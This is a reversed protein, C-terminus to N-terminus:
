SDLVTGPRWKQPSNTSTSPTVPPKLKMCQQHLPKAAPVLAAAIASPTDYYHLVFM